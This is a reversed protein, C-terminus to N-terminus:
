ILRLPQGGSVLTSEMRMYSASASTSTSTSSTSTTSTITSSSSASSGKTTTTAQTPDAEYLRAKLTATTLYTILTGLPASAAVQTNSFYPVREVDLGEPPVEIATDLMLQQDVGIRAPAVNIVQNDLDVYLTTARLFFEGLIVYNGSFSGIGAHCHTENVSYSMTSLPISIDYGLFNFVFASDSDLDDCRYVDGNVSDNVIGLLQATKAYIDKPLLLASTGTDFLAKLPVQLIWGNAKDSNYDFYASTVVSAVSTDDLMPLQVYNGGVGAIFFGGFVILGTKTDYSDLYIGYGRNAILGQNKMAQPVNAYGAPRVSSKRGHGIGMIPMTSPGEDMVAFSVNTLQTDGITVVDHFAGGEFGSHGVYDISIPYGFDESTDSDAAVYGTCKDECLLESPVWLDNSGTDLLCSFGQPQSGVDISIM